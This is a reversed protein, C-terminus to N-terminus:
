DATLRNSTSPAMSNAFSSQTRIGLADVLRVFTGDRVPKPDEESHIGYQNTGDDRILRIGYAGLLVYLTMAIGFTIATM